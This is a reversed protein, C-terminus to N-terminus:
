PICRKWKRQAPAFGVQGGAQGSKQGAGARQMKWVAGGATVGARNEGLCATCSMCRARCARVASCQVARVCEAVSAASRDGAGRKQGEFGEVVEARKARASGVAGGLGTQM